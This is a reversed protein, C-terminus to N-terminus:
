MRNGDGASRGSRTSLLSIAASADFGSVASTNLVAASGYTPRRVYKLTKEPANL